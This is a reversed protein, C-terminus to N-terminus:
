RHKEQKSFIAALTTPDDAIEDFRRRFDGCWDDAFVRPYFSGVKDVFITVVPPHLHCGGDGPPLPPEGPAWHECDACRKM